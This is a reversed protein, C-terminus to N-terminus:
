YNKDEHEFDNSFDFLLPQQDNDKTVSIRGPPAIIQNANQSAIVWNAWIRLGGGIRLKSADSWKRNYKQSVIDGIKEANIRPSKKLADISIKVSDENAACSLIKELIEAPVSSKFVPEFYYSNSLALMGFRVLVSCANRFGNNKMVIVPQSGNLAIYTFAEQVKAPAADAIFVLGGPKQHSFTTKNLLDVDGRDEYFVFDEEVRLYGLRILWQRMKNAYIAWTKHDHKASPMIQKLIAIIDEQKLPIGTSLKALEITLQHRKFIRRLTLLFSKEDVSAVSEALLIDRIGTESKVVGFQILDHIINRVTTTKFETEEALVEITKGDLNDLQMCVRLLGEISTSQPIYNFPIDPITGSVVYDRFIDWYLNLKDGRRIILRKNQLSQIIDHGYEDLAEVWDAPANKAVYRVCAIEKHSLNNLDRDFLSAIDLSTNEMEVQSIGNSLQQGLHICLKKLLWPYGQSNTLLYKRLDPRVKEPLESEFMNLSLEADQHSFPRLNIEYRLDSLRHWLYYAPHDQPISCDTKWAFGIIFNSNASIVSYMLNSAAEFLPFLKTKSYLEEFQDLILVVAQKKRGCEAIFSKISSSELLNSQNSLELLQNNGFGNRQAERLCQLLACEIYSTDNAARMDVAYVFVNNPKHSVRAEERIKAVFSSKGIGSDGKIAFVRTETKKNKIDSILRFLDKIDKKRGVFHEPRAPRYDSWNEGIEVEVVPSRTDQIEAIVFDNWYGLHKLSFSTAKIKVILENDDTILHGNEASFLVFCKPIGNKLVSTAWYKGYESLVLIWEGISFGKEAPIPCVCSTQPVIINAKIVRDVIREPTFISLNEHNPRKEWDDMFGKADKGFVGTSIFWGEKYNHFGITGFMKILDNASLTKDNYAKCEVYIQKGSVTDNCLLDLESATKRVNKAISYGYIKLWEAAFNELVDGQNKKPSDNNAIVEILM